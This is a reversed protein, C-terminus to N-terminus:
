RFFPTCTAHMTDADGTGGASNDGSISAVRPASIAHSGMNTAAHCSFSRSFSFKSPRLLQVRLFKAAALSSIKAKWSMKTSSPFSNPQVLAISCLIWILLLLGKLSCNQHMGGGSRFSTHVKSLSMSCMLTICGLWDGM